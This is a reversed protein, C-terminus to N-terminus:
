YIIYENAAESIIIRNVIENKKLYSINLEAYFSKFFYTRSFNKNPKLYEHEECSSSSGTYYYFVSGEYWRSGVEYSATIKEMVM